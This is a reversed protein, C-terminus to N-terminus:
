RREAWRQECSTLSALWTRGKGRFVLEARGLDYTKPIILRM